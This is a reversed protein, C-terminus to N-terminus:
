LAEQSGGEQEIEVPDGVFDPALEERFVAGGKYDEANGKFYIPSNPDDTTHVTLIKEGNENPESCEQWSTKPKDANIRPDNGQIPNDM